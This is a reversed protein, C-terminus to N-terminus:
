RTTVLKVAIGGNSTRLVEVLDLKTQRLLEDDAALLAVNWDPLKRRTLNGLAAYLDRLPQREGVRVGYPPNAILWGRGAPPEVAALPRVDFEVDHRVGAREANALAAEIGGADRDSGIIAAPARDLITKRAQAVHLDWRASDFGPWRQFAFSRPERDPNALAPPIRRAILAAEIPITGSGCLPDLLPQDPEWRSALLVGAALTERLPARAVAKRYGRRHLHEGSSDASVVCRDRVFRVIFLQGNDVAEDGDEEDAKAASQGAAEVGDDEDAKAASKGAAEVGVGLAAGIERGFREEIAGQHYLRSKRSTVRLRVRAADGVFSRWDIRRLHRELEIFSRAKFEAVRVLVRSASRLHLNATYLTEFSGSWRVGGPELESVIGLSALEAATTREFGPPTVAFFDHDDNGSAVDQM